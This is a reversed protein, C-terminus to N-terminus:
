EWIYCAGSEHILAGVDDRLDSVFVKYEERLMSSDYPHFRFYPHCYLNFTKIYQDFVRKTVQKYM